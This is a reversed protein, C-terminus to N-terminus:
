NETNDPTAVHVQGIAKEQVHPPMMYYGFYAATALFRHVAVEPPWGFHDTQNMTIKDLGLPTIREKYLCEDIIGFLLYMEDFCIRRDLSKAEAEIEPTLEIDFKKNIVLAIKDEFEAFQPLAKKLPYIVDGVYAETADHLFLLKAVKMNFDNETPLNQAAYRCLRVSHEAVSYFKKTHGNYRCLNALSHAIDKIDVDDVKMKNLNIYKGTVTLMNIPTEKAKTM